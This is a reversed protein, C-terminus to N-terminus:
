QPRELEVRIQTGKGPESDITLVAGMDKARTIMSPIGWGDHTKPLQVKNTEFGIGNDLIALSIRNHKEMLKVVIHTAKAHKIINTLAEQYIRFLAIEYQSPLRPELSRGDVFINIGTRNSFQAASNRIAVFIGYDDLAPPRIESMINRIAAMTEEVLQLPTEIDQRTIPQKGQEARKSLLTLNLNLVTLNQGVRDHLENTIFHSQQEQVELEKDRLRHEFEKIYRIDRFNTSLRSLNGQADFHGLVIQSVPVEVGKGDIVAAEGLWLGHKKVEPLISEQFLHIVWEPLFQFVNSKNIQTDHPLDFFSYGAQNLYQLQLDAGAISVIDPTAELIDILQQNTQQAYHQETIDWGTAQFEVFHENEDFIARNIWHQWYEKEDIKHVPHEVLYIPNDPTLLLLNKEMEAAFEPSLFDYITKGLMQAQTKHFFDCIAHNVFTLEGKRNYRNIFVTQSDIIAKYHAESDSLVKNTRRLEKQINLLDTVDRSTGIMLWPKGAENRLLLKERYNLWNWKGSAAKVCVTMEYVKDEIATITETCFQNHMDISDPHLISDYFAHSNASPDLQYGLIRATNTNEM